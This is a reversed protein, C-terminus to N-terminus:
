GGDGSQAHRSKQQRKAISLFQVSKNFCFLTNHYLCQAELSSDIPEDISVVLDSSLGNSSFVIFVEVM